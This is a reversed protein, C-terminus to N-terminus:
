RIMMYPKTVAFNFACMRDHSTRSQFSYTTNTGNAVPRCVEATISRLVIKYEGYIGAVKDSSFLYQASGDSASIEKAFAQFLKVGELSNKLCDVTFSAVPTSTLGNKSNYLELNCKFTNANANIKGVTSVNCVNTMNSNTITSQDLNWRM